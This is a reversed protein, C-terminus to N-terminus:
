STPALAPITDYWYEEAETLSSQAAYDMPRAHSDYTELERLGEPLVSHFSVIESFLRERFAPLTDLTIHGSEFLDLYTRQVRLCFHTLGEVWANIAERAADTATDRAINLRVLKKSWEYSLLRFLEMLPELEANFIQAGAPQSKQSLDHGVYTRGSLQQREGKRLDSRWDSEFSFTFAPVGLLRPRSAALGDLVDLNRRISSLSTNRNFVIFSLNAYIGHEQLARVCSVVTSVDLQKNLADLDGQDFSEAGVFVQVLGAQKLLDLHGFRQLTDARCYIKFRIPPLEDVIRRLLEERGPLIADDRGIFESDYFVFNRVGMDCYRRLDTLIDDNHRVQWREPYNRGQNIFCFSCGYHCGRTTEVAARARRIQWSELNLGQMYPHASLGDTFGPGDEPLGLARAIEREDHRVIVVSSPWDNFRRLRAVQGYIWVRKGRSALFFAARRVYHLNEGTERLPILYGGYERQSLPVLETDRELHFDHVEYDAFGVAAFYGLLYTIIPEEAVNLSSYRYQFPMRIICLPTRTDFPVHSNGM